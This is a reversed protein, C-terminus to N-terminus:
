MILESQIAALDLTQGEFKITLGDQEEYRPIIHVHAHFVVQGALENINSLINIGKCNTEKMLHNAVKQVARMFHDYHLPDMELINAYHEKPIVLTHGKSVQSIDLFALVHEDEYIKYSPIEHQIIKCFICM